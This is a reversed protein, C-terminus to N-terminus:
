KNINITIVQSEALDYWTGSDQVKITFEVVSPFSTFDEYYSEYLYLTEFTKKGGELANAYAGCLDVKYGDIHVNTFSIDLADTTKNEVNFKLTPGLISLEQKVYTVKVYEDEYKVENIVSNNISPAPETTSGNNYTSNTSVETQEDYTPESTSLQNLSNLLEKCLLAQKFSAADKIEFISFMFINLAMSLVLMVSISTVAILQKIQKKTM